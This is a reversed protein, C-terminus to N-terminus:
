CCDGGINQGTVANNLYATLAQVADRNVGCIMHKGRREVTILNALRLEKLHHSITSTIKDAGTIRCCVEGVTPGWSTPEDPDQTPEPSAPAPDGASESPSSGDTSGGPATASCGALALCLAPVLLQVSRRLM